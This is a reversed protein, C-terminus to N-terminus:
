KPFDASKTNRMLKAVLDCYQLLMRIGQYHEVISILNKALQAAVWCASVIRQRCMSESVSPGSIVRSLSCFHWVMCSFKNQDELRLAQLHAAAM